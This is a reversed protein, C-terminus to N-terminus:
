DEGAPRAPLERLRRQVVQPSVEGFRESLAAAIARVTPRRGPGAADIVQQVDAATPRPGATRGGTRRPRAAAYASARSQRWRYTTRQPGVRIEDPRLLYGDEGRDWADRSDQAYGKVTDSQLGLLRAFAGVGILADQSVNSEADVGFEGGTPEKEVQALPQRGPRGREATFADLDALAYVEEGDVREPLPDPWGYRARGYPSAYETVTNVSLGTREAAGARNTVTVGDVTWTQVAGGATVYRHGPCDVRLVLPPLGRGGDLLGVRSLGTDAVM